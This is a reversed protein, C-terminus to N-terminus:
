YPRAARLASGSSGASVAESQFLGCQVLALSVGGNQKQQAHLSRKLAAIERDKQSLQADKQSLQAHKQSLEVRRVDAEEKLRANDARLAELDQRQESLVTSFAGASYDLLQPDITVHLQEGVTEVKLRELDTGSIILSSLDAGGTQEAFKLFIQRLVQDILDLETRWLFRERSQSNISLLEFETENLGRTPSYGGLVIVNRRHLYVLIPVLYPRLEFFNTHQIGAGGLETYPISGEQRMGRSDLVAYDVCYNKRLALYVKGRELPESRSMPLLQYGYVTQPSYIIKMVRNMQSYLEKIRHIYGWPVGRFVSFVDPINVVRAYSVLFKEYVSRQTVSYFQEPVAMMMLDRVQSTQSAGGLQALVAMYLPMDTKPFKVIYREVDAVQAVVSVRSSESSGAPFSPANIARVLKQYYTILEEPAESVKQLYEYLGVVLESKEQIIVSLSEDFKEADSKINGVLVKIEKVRARIKKYNDDAKALYQFEPSTNDIGNERAYPLYIEKYFESWLNKWTRQYRDVANSIVLFLGSLLQKGEKSGYLWINGFGLSVKVAKMLFTDIHYLNLIARHVMIVKLLVSNEPKQLVCKLLGTSQEDKKQPSMFQQLHTEVESLNIPKLAQMNGRTVGAVSLTERIFQGMKTSLIKQVKPESKPQFIEDVQLESQNVNQNMLYLVDFGHSIMTIIALHISDIQNNFSAAQVSKKVDAHLTKLDEILQVLKQKPNHQEVDNRYFFVDREVLECYRIRRELITQTELSTISYRPLDSSIWQAFESYFMAEFGDKRYFDESRGVPKEFLTIVKRKRLSEFLRLIKAIMKGTMVKMPYSSQDLRSREVTFTAETESLQCYYLPCNKNDLRWEIPVEPKGLISSYYGCMTKYRSLDKKREDTPHDSLGERESLWKYLSSGIAIWISPQTSISRATQEIAAVVSEQTLNDTSLM